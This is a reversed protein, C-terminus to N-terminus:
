KQCTKKFLPHMGAGVPAESHLGAAQEPRKGRGRGCATVAHRSKSEAPVHVSQVSTLQRLQEKAGGAFHWIRAKPELGGWAVIWNWVRDVVTFHGPNLTCLPDLLQQDYFRAVLQSMPLLFGRKCATAWHKAIMSGHKVRLVGAQVSSGQECAPCDRTLVLDGECAFLEDPNARLHCDCDMWLTRQFGTQLIAMAKAFHVTDLPEVDIRIVRGRKQCWQRAPSNMGFDAFVVPRDTHRRVQQHWQPLMWEQKRDCGTLLCDGDELPSWEMMLPSALTAPKLLVSAWNPIQWQGRLGICAQSNRRQAIGYPQLRMTDNGNGTSFVLGANGGGTGRVVRWRREYAGMGDDLTSGDPRLDLARLSDGLIVYVFRRTACIWDELQRANM